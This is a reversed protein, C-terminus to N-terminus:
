QYSVRVSGGDFTDTGNVTTVRIQTLDGGLAVEGSTVAAYSNNIAGSCCWNNGSVKKLTISGSIVVAAAWSSVALRFGDTSSGGRTQDSITASGSCLSTYGTVVFGGSTGLRLLPISTGSTSVNHFDVTVTTAWSPIGTFDVATGSTSNVAALATFPRTLKAPTISNDPITRPLSIM